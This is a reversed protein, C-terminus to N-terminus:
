DGIDRILAVPSSRVLSVLPPLAAVLAIALLFAWGFASPGIPIRPSIVLGAMMKFFFATNWADFLGMATGALVAGIAIIFSEGLILKVLVLRSAGAARLIGYEFHRASINAAIVNAAGFGAIIMGLLAFTTLISMLHDSARIIFSKIERGSGFQGGGLIALIKPKATENDISKALDFQVMQIQRNDFCRAAENQSLFVCNIAQEFFEGQIGFLNTALDLGPSSVVGVVEFQNVNNEPGLRITSGVGIKRAALFERAVLIAGQGNLRRRAEDPNGQTWELNTMDFFPDPQFSIVTVNPPAIGKVGFIQRGVVPIKFTGIACANEIFPQNRLDDIKEPEIGTMNVVFSDPFRIPKIWDEVLASGSSWMSIMSALGLMLAGATFGHRYPTARISNTLMSRPLRLFKGLIPSVTSNAFQVIVVSLVFFGFVMGFLGVTIALWFAFQEDDPGRLSFYSVFVALVGILTIALIGRKRPKRSQFGLAAIPSIRAAALAPLLSGALGAAVSSALSLLLRSFSFHLGDRFASGIIAYLLRGLLIGLPLGLLGGIFGLIAGVWLQSRFVQTRTAGICRLIALEHIRETVATTMGTLVIFAAVLFICAVSVYEFLFTGRLQRDIGAQLRDSLVLELPPQVVNKYKESLNRPKENRRVTLDITTLQGNQNTLEQLPQLPVRVEPKQLIALTERKMVGTVTLSILTGYSGIQLRDGIQVALRDMVRPDILMEDDNQPPRGLLMPPPHVIWEQSFDVGQVAVVRQTDRIFKDRDLVPDLKHAREAATLNAVPMNATLRPAAAQVEPWTRVLKLASESIKGHTQHRIRLDTRGM